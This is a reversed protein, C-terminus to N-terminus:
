ELWIDYITAGSGGSYVIYANELGDPVNVSYVTNTKNATFDVFAIYEGERGFWYSGPVTESFGLSPTDSGNAYTCNALACLRSYGKVNVIETTWTAALQDAGTITHKIYDNTHTASMGSAASHQIPILAGEGAKFIYLPPLTWEVWTNNQYSQAVVDTWAGNVYQKASTPYIQISNTKLANFEAVSEIDTSFWVMGTSGTPETASFAWSVIDTSTNVWIMNESPNSPASTGGVVDFNLEVGTSINNIESTFDSLLIADTKGTKARVADAISTLTESQVLYEAM